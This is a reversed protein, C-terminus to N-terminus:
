EVHLIIELDFFGIANPNLMGVTYVNIQNPKFFTDSNEWNQGNWLVM